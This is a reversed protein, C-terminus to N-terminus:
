AATAKRRRLGALGGLAGVLLLGAAPVPIPAPVTTSSFSLKKANPKGSQSSFTMVGDTADFGVATITGLATFAPNSGGMIATFSTATFTFIGVSWIQGPALFSIDTLAASSGLAVSSFDGDAILVVGTSNLDVNGTATFTSTGVKYTGAIDIQGDITAASAAGAALGVALVGAALFGSLRMRDFM